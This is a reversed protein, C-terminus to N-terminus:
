TISIWSFCWFPIHYKQTLQSLLMQCMGDSPMSEPTRPQRWYHSTFAVTFALHPPFDLKVFGCNGFFKFRDFCREFKRMVQKRFNHDWLFILQLSVNQQERNTSPHLYDPGPLQYREMTHVTCCKYLKNRWVYKMIILWWLYTADKLSLPTSSIPQTLTHCPQVTMM